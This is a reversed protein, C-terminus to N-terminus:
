LPRSNSRQDYSDAKPEIFLNPFLKHLYREESLSIYNVHHHLEGGSDLDPSAHEEPRDAFSVLITETVSSGAPGAERVAPEWVRALPM